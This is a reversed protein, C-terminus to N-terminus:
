NKCSGMLVLISITFLGGRRAHDEDVKLGKLDEKWWEGRLTVEVDKSTVKPVINGEVKEGIRSIESSGEM